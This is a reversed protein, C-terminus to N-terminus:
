VIKLYFSRLLCSMVLKEKLIKLVILDKLDEFHKFVVTSHVNVVCFGFIQLGQVAQETKLLFYRKQTFKTWFSLIIHKLQFETGVSIWIHLIEYYHESKRNEVPFVKKPLNSGFFWFQWNSSFNRVLSIQIHLIIYFIYPTWKKQKLGSFGNKKALDPWFFSFQWNLSFDPVLVLKFLRFEFIINLKETKSWLYREQAFKTWVNLISQEFHFKICLSIQIHM